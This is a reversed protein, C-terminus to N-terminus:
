IELRDPDEALHDRIVARALGAPYGRRTLLKMLEIEQDPGADPFVARCLASATLKDEELQKVFRAAVDAEVGNRILVAQMARRSRLKRGRYRAVIAAAAREDNIYDIDIFYRVVQDALRADVGKGLLNRRVRGSSKSRDIGIFAVAKQRAAEFAAPDSM